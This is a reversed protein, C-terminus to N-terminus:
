SRRKYLPETLAKVTARAASVFGAVRAAPTVVSESVFRATGQVESLTEQATSVLTTVERRVEKVLRVVQM